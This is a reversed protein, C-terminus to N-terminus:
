ATTHQKHQLVVAEGHLPTTRQGPDNHIIEYLNRNKSYGQQTPTDSNTSPKPQKDASYAHGMCARADQITAKPKAYHRLKDLIQYSFFKLLTEAPRVGRTDRQNLAGDQRDEHCPQGFLLLRTLM